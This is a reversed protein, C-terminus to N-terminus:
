DRWEDNDNWGSDNENYEMKGTKTTYTDAWTKSDLHGALPSRRKPTM